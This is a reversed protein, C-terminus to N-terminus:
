SCRDCFTGLLGCGRSSVGAVYTVLDGQGYCRALAACHRGCRNPPHSHTNQLSLGPPVPTAEPEVPTTVYTPTAGGEEAIPSLPAVNCYDSVERYDVGIQLGGLRCGKGLTGAKRDLVLPPTIPPAFERILSYEGTVGGRQGPYSLLSGQCLNSNLHVASQHQNCRLKLNSCRQVRTASRRLPRCSM